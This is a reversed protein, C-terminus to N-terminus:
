PLSMARTKGWASCVQVQPAPALTVLTDEVGQAIDTVVAALDISFVIGLGMGLHLRKALVDLTDEGGPGLAGGAFAIGIHHFAAFVEDFLRRLRSGDEIEQLPV